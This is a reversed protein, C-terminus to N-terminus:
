STGISVHDEFGTVCEELYDTGVKEDEVVCSIQLKMIGYAVPVLKAAFLFIKWVCVCVVQLVSVLEGCYDM